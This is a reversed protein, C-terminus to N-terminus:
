NILFTRSVGEAIYFRENLLVTGASEVRLVHTGPLVRISAQGELFSSVLGVDLDDVFIRMSTSSRSPNALKFSIQPRMDVISRTETPMQVCGSLAFPTMLALLLLIVRM